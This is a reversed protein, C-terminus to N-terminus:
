AKLAALAAQAAELAKEAEAKKALDDGAVTVAAEADAVAKEAEALKKAAGDDTKAPSTRKGVKDSVVKPKEAEVAFRDAILHRGYSEPVDTPEHAGIVVDKETGMAKASLIIGNPASITIKKSM